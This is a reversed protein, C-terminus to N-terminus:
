PAIEVVKANAPPAVPETLQAPEFVISSFELGLAAGTVQFRTKDRTAENRLDISKPIYQDGVKALDVLSLTRLVKGDPGILEAQVPVNYQTDLYARVGSIGPHEAAWAAPPKFFFVHAPRSRIRSVQELTADPWYIYTMQLEFATLEVGPILPALADVREPPRATPGPVFSWVAPNEGNQVLLRREGGTADTVSVRTVAGQENRAGWLSGSFDREDGRRPLVRLVFQLYYQGPIGAQRFRQLVQRGEEQDPKGLQLYTAPPQGAGPSPGASATTAGLIGGIFFARWLAAPTNRLFPL